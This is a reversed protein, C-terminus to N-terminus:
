GVIVDSSGSAPIKNSDLDGERVIPLNNAFVTSSHKDLSSGDKEKAGEVAVPSGNVFVTPALNEIIKDSASDVGVRAAGPM